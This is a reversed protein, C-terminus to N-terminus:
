SDALLPHSEQRLRDLTIKQTDPAAQALLQKWLHEIGRVTLHDPRNQQRLWAARQSTFIYESESDPTDAQVNHYLYEYLVHRAEEPLSITKGKGPIKIIASHEDILCHEFRLTALEQVRLGGWYALVFIATLRLSHQQEIVVRLDHLQKDTLSLVEQPPIVPLKVAFDVNDALFNREFAWRCFHRIVTLIRTQTRPAYRDVVTDFYRQITEQTLRSFHFNQDHNLWDLFDRLASAYIKTTKENNLQLDQLFIQILNVSDLSSEIQNNPAVGTTGREILTAPILYDQPPLSDSALQRLLLGAIQRGIQDGAQKFTTLQPELYTGVVLNDVSIISVDDPIHVGLWQLARHVGLAVVDAFCFIATPRENPMRSWLSVTIEFAPKAMLDDLEQHFEKYLRQKRLDWEAVEIIEPLLRSETMAREYGAAREIGPHFKPFGLHIIREHGLNILYRTADYGLQEDDTVVCDIPTEIVPRRLVFVVPINHQQLLAVVPTIDGYLPPIIAFGVVDRELLGEVIEILLGMHEDHHSLVLGYHTAHLVEEITPVLEPLYSYFMPNEVILAILKHQSSEKPKELVFSGVYPVNRVYRTQTLASLAQRITIRSVKLRTQLTRESPLSQGPRLTGDEIQEMIAKRLRDYLPQPSETQLAREIREFDL